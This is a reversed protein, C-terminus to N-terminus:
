VKPIIENKIIRVVGKDANVEVLDGDKLVKTAIKTGIVCPKKLERSVIAAHCLVGGDDTVFAAAKKMIPLYYPETMPSVIIEQDNFKEMDRKFRVIRVKGKVLGPYATKGKIETLHSYDEEKFFGKEEIKKKAEDGSCFEVMENNAHRCYFYEKRQELEEPLPLPSNDQLHKELEVFTIYSVQEPTYGILDALWQCYKPMFGLEGDKYILEARNRIKVVWATFAERKDEDLEEVWDLSDVAAYAIPMLGEYFRYLKLIIEKNYDNVETSLFQEYETILQDFQQYEKEFDIEGRNVKRLLGKSLNYRDGEIQCHYFVGNNVVSIIEQLTGEYLAVMEKRFFACFAPLIGLVTYEKQHIEYKM